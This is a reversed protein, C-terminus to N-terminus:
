LMLSHNSNWNLSFSIIGSTKDISCCTLWYWDDDTYKWEYSQQKLAFSLTCKIVFRKLLQEQTYGIVFSLLQSPGTRVWSIHCSTIFDFFIIADQYTYQIWRCVCSSQRIYKNWFWRKALAINWESPFNTFQNFFCGKKNVYEQMKTRLWDYEHAQLSRM